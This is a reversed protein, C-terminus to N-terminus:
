YQTVGSSSIDRCRWGASILTDKIQSIVDSCFQDGKSDAVKSDLGEKSYWARCASEKVEVRLTRVEEGRRCLWYSQFTGAEATSTVLGLAIFFVWLVTAMLVKGQAKKM